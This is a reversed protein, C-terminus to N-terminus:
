LQSRVYDLCTKNPCSLCQPTLLEETSIYIGKLTCYYDKKSTVSQKKFGRRSGQRPRRGIPRCKKGMHVYRKQRNICAQLPIKHKEECLVNGDKLLTRYPCEPYDYSKSNNTNISLQQGPSSKSLYIDLLDNLFKHDSMKQPKLERFRRLLPTPVTIQKWGKPMDSCM